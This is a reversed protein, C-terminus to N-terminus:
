KLKELPEFAFGKSNARSGRRFIGIARKFAVKRLAAHIGVLRSVLAVKEAGYAFWFVAPNRQKARRQPSALRYTAYTGRDLGEVYVDGTWVSSKLKCSSGESFTIHGPHIANSGQSEKQASSSEGLVGDRPEWLGDTSQDLRNRGPSVFRM